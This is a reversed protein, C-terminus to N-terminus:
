GRASLATVLDRVTPHDYLLSVPVQQGLAASLRGAARLARVSDGGMEFFSDFRGWRQTNMVEALVAAAATELEGEPDAYSPAAGSSAAAPDAALAPIDRPAGDPGRPIRDVMTVRLGAAAPPALDRLAREILASLEGGARPDAPEAAVVIEAGGLQDDALWGSIAPNAPDLGVALYARDDNLCALLTAIGDAPQIVRMGRRRAAPVLPSGENMGREHWMSWAICHVPRGAAALQQGVGDLSASAAAYAGYSAGGLIGNVSSFLVAHCAPRTALLDAVALAGLAKPAMVARLWDPSEARIEHGALDAWQRRIDLAALHMVCDAPRARDAEFEAVARDLAAADTVDAARYHVEGLERLEGLLRARADDLEAEPTRGILVVCAGAAVALYRAVEAGLGGLGGILVALGGAPLVSAPVTLRDALAAVRLRQAHWRGARLAVVEGTRLDATLAAAIDAAAADAPADLLTVRDACGEAAATRVLGTLAARGPDATEGPRVSVALGTLVLIRGARAPAAGGPGPGARDAQAALARLASMLRTAPRFVADPAAVPGADGADRARGWAYVTYAPPRPGLLHGLARDLHWPVDPDATAGGPAFRLEPGSRIM